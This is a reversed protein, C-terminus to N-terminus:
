MENNVSFESQYTFYQSSVWLRNRQSLDNLLVMLTRESIESTCEPVLNM